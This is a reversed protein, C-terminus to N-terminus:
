VIPERELHDADINFQDEWEGGQTLLSILQLPAMVQQQLTQSPTPPSQEFTILLAALYLCGLAVTHPPYMLPVHTRYADVTLRWAFKTLLKSVSLYISLVVLTRLSFALSSGNFYRGLKIAFPFPMKSTFNFCITELILREIALLRQRDSEIAQGRWMTLDWRISRSMRVYRLIWMWRELWRRPNSPKRPIDFPM